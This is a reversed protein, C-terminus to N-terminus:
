APASKRILYRYVGILNIVLLVINQTGIGEADPKLFGWGILTISSTVFIVFGFGTWRRGLDLSVILAAIAGAVAGYWQLAATLM